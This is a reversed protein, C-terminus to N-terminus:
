LDQTVQFSGILLQLTRDPTSNVQSHSTTTHLSQQKVDVDDVIYMLKSQGAYYNDYVTNIFCSLSLTQFASM